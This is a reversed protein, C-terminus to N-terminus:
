MCDFCLWSASTQKPIELVTSDLAADFPLLVTDQELYLPIIIPPASLNKHLDCIAQYPVPTTLIKCLYKPPFPFRSLRLIYTQCAAPM